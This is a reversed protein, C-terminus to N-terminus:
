RRSCLHLRRCIGYVPWGHTRFCSSANAQRDYRLASWWGTRLACSNTVTVTYPSTAPIQGTERYSVTGASGTTVSGASGWMLNNWATGEWQAFAASGKINRKGVASDVPFSWLGFLSKLDASFDVKANQMTGIQCPTLNTGTQGGNPYAWIVGSGFGLTQLQQESM